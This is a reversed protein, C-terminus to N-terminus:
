RVLLDSYITCNPLEKKLSDIASATARTNMLDLIRLSELGGIASIDKIRTRHLSLVWLDARNALHEISLIDACGNAYLVRLPRTREVLEDFDTQSIDAKLQYGILERGYGTDVFLKQGGGFVEKTFTIHKERGQILWVGMNIWGAFVVDGIEVTIESPTRKGCYFNNVHIGLGEKPGAVRLIFCEQREKPERGAM